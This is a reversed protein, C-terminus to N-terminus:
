EVRVVVRKPFVARVASTVMPSGSVSLRRLSASRALAAVGADTIGSIASFEIEELGRMTALLEPTRDTIQTYSAFYRRLRDLGVIHSTAEDGTDRCYMLTLKQLGECKGIHRYGADPIDIPMLERLSPFEPLLALADDAVNRCSVALDALSPMTALARFGRSGLGHCRRGWIAAITRSESLAVWGDDTADTDQCSLRQLVPFSAIISLEADHFDGGLAGLHEMAALPALGSAPIQSRSEFHLSYLGHLRALSALGHKSFNGRLTVSSPGRDGYSEATMEGPMWTRYRPIDALQALGADTVTVGTILHRLADHGAFAAIMGDGTGTWLLDVHALRPCAALHVGSADSIRLGAGDFRELRPLGAIAELGSDTVGTGGIDLHRLQPMGAVAAIGADTLLRSGALHLATVDPMTAIRHLVADTMQGNAHVTTLGHSAIREIVQDWDRAQFREDNDPEGRTAGVPRRTVSRQDPPLAALYDVLEGWSRFQHDYAVWRRADVLTIEPFDTESARHVGLDALVYSRMAKWERRHWTDAYHREMAERTGLRYADLLRQAM